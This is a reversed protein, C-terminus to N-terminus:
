WQGDLGKCAQIKPKSPWSFCLIWAQPTEQTTREQSDDSDYEKVTVIFAKKQQKLGYTNEKWCNSDYCNDEMHTMSIKRVIGKYSWLTKGESNM